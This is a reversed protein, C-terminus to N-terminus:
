EGGNHDGPESKVITLAAAGKVHRGGMQQIIWELRGTNEKHLQAVHRQIQRRERREELWLVGFLLTGGAGLFKALEQIFDLTM